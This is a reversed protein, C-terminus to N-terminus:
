QLTKIPKEDGLPINLKNKCTSPTQSQINTNEYSGYEKRRGEM